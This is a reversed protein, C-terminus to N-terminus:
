DPEAYQSLVVVGIEPDTERLSAAARIGEDARGPPMRIDTLVVDPREREISELLSPLDDCVAALELEPQAELLRVLGERILYSDEAVVIRIAM